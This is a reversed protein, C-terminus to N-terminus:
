EAFQVSQAIWAEQNKDYRLRVVFHTRVTGGFSNPADVYSKVAYECKGTKTVQNDIDPWPFDADSPSKLKREVALQAYTLASIEDGCGAAAQQPLSESGLDDIKVVVWGILGAVLIMALFGVVRTVPSNQVDRYIKVYKESVPHGCSPCKEAASSIQKKCAECPLMFPAHNKPTPNKLDHKVADDASSSSSEAPATANSIPETRHMASLNGRRKAKFFLVLGCVGIVLGIIMTAVTAGTGGEGLFASFMILAGFGAIIVGLSKMIFDVIKTLINQPM